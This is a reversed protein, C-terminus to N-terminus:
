FYAAEMKLTLGSSPILLNRRFISATIHRGFESIERHLEEFKASTEWNRREHFLVCKKFYYLKPRAKINEPFFSNTGL